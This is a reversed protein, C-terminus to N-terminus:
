SLNNGLKLCFLSAYPATCDQLHCTADNRLLDSCLVCPGGLVRCQWDVKWQKLRVKQKQKLTIRQLVHCPPDAFQSSKARSTTPIELVFCYNREVIRQM